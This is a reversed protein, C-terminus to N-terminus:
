QASHFDCLPCCDCPRPELIAMYVSTLPPSNQLVAPLTLLFGDSLLKGSGPDNRDDAENEEEGDSRLVEEDDWPIAITPSRREEIDQSREIKQDQNKQIIVPIRDHASRLPNYAGSSWGPCISKAFDTSTVLGRPLMVTPLTPNTNGPHIM